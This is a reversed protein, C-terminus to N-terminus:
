RHEERSCWDMKKVKAQSVLVLIFLLFMYATYIYILDPKSNDFGYRWHTTEIWSFPSFNDIMGGLFKGLSPLFILVVALAYAWIRPVFLSATYLIMGLLSFALADMLFIHIQLQYPTYTQMAQQCFQVGSSGSLAFTQFLSGWENSFDVVPIIMVVSLLTLVASLIWGCSIISIVNRMGWKRKGLRMVVYLEGQEMFPVNSFFCAVGLLIVKNFYFDNQLHPLVAAADKVAHAMARLRYDSLYLDLMFVWIVLLTIMRVSIMRKKLLAMMSKLNM